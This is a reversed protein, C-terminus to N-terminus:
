VAALLVSQAAVREAIGPPLDRAEVLDVRIPLDSAAFAGDDVPHAARFTPAAPAFGLRELPRLSRENRRKLVAFLRQVACHGVLEDLMARVAQSALGRGWHASAFEYAIAASHDAHITAQVFGILREDAAQVVGNLGRRRGDASRRSELRAFRERLADLSAPPANEYTYIAPDSLADFTAPCASGDAAAAHPRPHAAHEHPM